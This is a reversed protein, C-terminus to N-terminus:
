ILIKFVVLTLIESVDKSENLITIFYISWIARRPYIFFNWRKSCPRNVRNGCNSFYRGMLVMKSHKKRNIMLYDLWVYLLIILVNLFVDPADYDRPELILQLVIFISVAFVGLGFLALWGGFDELKQKSKSLTVKQQSHGLGKNNKTLWEGVINANKLM